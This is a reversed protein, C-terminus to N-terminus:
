WQVLRNNHRYKIGFSTVKNGRGVNVLKNIVMGLLLKVRANPAFMAGGGLKKPGILDLPYQGLRTYYTEPYIM